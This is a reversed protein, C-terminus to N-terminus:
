TNLPVFLPRLVFTIQCVIGVILAGVHLQFHGHTLKERMMQCDMRFTATGSRLVAFMPIIGFKLRRLDLSETNLESSRQEYSTFEFGRLKKSYKAISINNPQSTVRSLIESTGYFHHYKPLPALNLQFM